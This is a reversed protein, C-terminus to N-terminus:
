RSASNMARHRHHGAHLRAEAGPVVALYNGPNRAMDERIDPHADFFEKLDPHSALYRSSNVLEPKRSLQQAIEAHSAQFEDWTKYRQMPLDAPSAGGAEIVTNGSSVAPASMTAGEDTQAFVPATMVSVITVAILVLIIKPM